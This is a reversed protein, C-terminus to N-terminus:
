QYVGYELRGIVKLVDAPAADAPNKNGLALCPKYLWNIAEKENGGFLGVAAKYVEADIEKESEM